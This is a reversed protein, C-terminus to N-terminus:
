NEKTDDRTVQIGLQPSAPDFKIETFDFSRNYKIELPGSKDWDLPSEKSMKTIGKTCSAINKHKVKTKM